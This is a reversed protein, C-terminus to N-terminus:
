ASLSVRPLCVPEGHQEWYSVIDVGVGGINCFGFIVAGTPELSFIFDMIRDPRRENIAQVNEKYVPKLYRAVARPYNGVILLRNFKFTTREKLVRVWQITRDGRDARVNMIGIMPLRVAADWQRIHNYIM